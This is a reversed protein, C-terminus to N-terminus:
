LRVLETKVPVRLSDVVPSLREATEKLQQLQEDSATSKVYIKGTIQQLGARVGQALGMAGQLDIQGELQVELREVSIGRAAGFTAWGGAISAGAAAILTELAAPSVTQAVLGESHDGIVQLTCGRATTGVAQVSEGVEVKTQLGQQWITRAYVAAKAMSPNQRVAEITRNLQEVSIGNVISM